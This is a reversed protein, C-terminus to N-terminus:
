CVKQVQVCVANQLLLLMPSSGLARHLYSLHYEDVTIVLRLKWLYM